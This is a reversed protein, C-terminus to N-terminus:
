GGLRQALVREFVNRLAKDDSLVSRLRSAPDGSYTQVLRTKLSAGPQISGTIETEIHNQEPGMMPLKVLDGQAGAVVLAFSGQQELPLQGLPTYPDTPDFIWLRGLKPHSLIAQSDVGDPVRVALIAHNFQMPSPWDRRVFDRDGSFVGVLYSDIGHAKLLARMLTAKDKCDGYNRTLIEEARHPTYGGGRTVNLQVSIYSTKQALSAVASLKDLFSASSPALESAKTRIVATPEAAPDMFGSLWESVATWTALPKLAAPADGSPYYTVGLWPAIAHTNPRYDEDPLWALDRMEWTFTTGSQQPELKDTSNMLTGRVEWGPPTTLVFRSRLVPEDDQFSYLYQTFVSREEEVIEWAFVSGKAINRPCEMVKARSETYSYNSALDVDQVSGKTGLKTVQADPGVLWGEFDRIRGSKTNYTRFARTSKSGNDLFRLAGRERMVRKGDPSVTVHEEKWLVVARVKSPYSPAKQAVAEALWDPLAEAAQLSAICLLLAALRM